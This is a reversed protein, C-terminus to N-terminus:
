RRVVWWALALGAALLWVWALDARLPPPGQQSVPDFRIVHLRGIASAFDEATDTVGQDVLYEHFRRGIVRGILEYLAIAEDHDDPHVARATWTGRADQITVIPDAVLNRYWHAREGYPDWAYLRGDIRHASLPARRPLGSTRGTTTLLQDGAIRGLGLRWLVTPARHLIRVPTTDPYGALWDELRRYSRGLRSPPPSPTESPDSGVPHRDEDAGPEGPSFPSTRHRSHEVVTM